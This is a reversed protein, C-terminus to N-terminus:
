SNKVYRASLLRLTGCLRKIDIKEAASQKSSQPVRRNLKFMKEQTTRKLAVFKSKKVKLRQNVISFRKWKEKGSLDPTNFM